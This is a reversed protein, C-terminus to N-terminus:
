KLKLISPVLLLLKGARRPAIIPVPDGPQWRCFGPDKFWLKGSNVISRKLAKLRGEEVFNAAGCKASSQHEIWQRLSEHDITNDGASAASGALLWIFLISLRM